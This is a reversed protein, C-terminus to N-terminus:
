HGGLHLCLGLNWWFRFGQLSLLLSVVLVLFGKDLGSFGSTGGVLSSSSIDEASDLSM